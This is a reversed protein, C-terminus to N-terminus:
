IKDISDCWKIFLKTSIDVYREGTSWGTDFKVSVLTTELGIHFGTIHKVKSSFFTEIFLQENNFVICNMNVFLDTFIQNDISM